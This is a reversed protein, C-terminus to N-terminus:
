SSGGRETGDQRLDLDATPPLPTSTRATEIAAVFPDHLPHKKAVILRLTLQDMMQNAWLVVAEADSPSPDFGFGHVIDGRRSVVTSKWVEWVDRNDDTLMPDLPGYSTDILRLARNWKGSSFTDRGKKWAQPWEEEWEGGAEELFLPLLMVEKVFIEISRVAWV